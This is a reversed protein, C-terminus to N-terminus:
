AGERTPRAAAPPAGAERTRAQTEQARRYRKDGAALLGGLAM